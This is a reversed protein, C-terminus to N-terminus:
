SLSITFYIIELERQHLNCTHLHTNGKFPYPSLASCIMTVVPSGLHCLPLSGAQWHLLYLLCPNSGQTPFIGQLFFHCGAGTNKGQFDWPCFLGTAVTWPTALLRIKSLVYNGSTVIWCLLLIYQQQKTVLNHGVRKHGCPSYGELRRQGHSKGPLFVPTPQWERRM